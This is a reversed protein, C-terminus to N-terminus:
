AAVDGVAFVACVAMIRRHALVAPLLRRERVAIIAFHADAIRPSALGPLDAHCRTIRVRREISTKMARFLPSRETTTDPAAGAESIPDSTLCAMACPQVTWTIAVGDASAKKSAASISASVPDGTRLACRAGPVGRECTGSAMTTAGAVNLRSLWHASPM